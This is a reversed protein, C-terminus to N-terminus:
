RQNLWQNFTLKSWEGAPEPAFGPNLPVDDIIPVAPLIPPGIDLPAETFGLGGVVPGSTSWAVIRGDRDLLNTGKLEGIWVRTKTAWVFNNYSYAVWKLDKNFVNRDELLWGVFNANKDYLPDMIILM